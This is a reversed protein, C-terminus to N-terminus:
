SWWGNVDVIVHASSYVYICLEGTVSLPLQAGNSIATATTYNVNATNPREGCPFATVFGSKEAGTVAVNVSVARADAPIGRRGAMQITIVQGAALRNGGTGANVDTRTVERTDTFRFPASPTFKSPSATSLYGTVDVVLDVDSTTFFCVRGDAAVPTVVLNPKVFGPMPNLNAALPRAADCPYVTIYGEASPDVSAVNLAAAAIDRPLGNAGGVQLEVTQGGSIRTSPGIPARTDMLRSPTVATFRGTGSARYFGSVDVVLQTTSSSYVCIGGTDDFPVTAANPLTDAAAFNLTSVLPREAACNWVTLFGAGQTQTVTFNASAAKADTPIGNRGGIQIRKSVGARLVSAGLNERTDVLRTPVMPEFGTAGGSPVADTPGPTPTPVPTTAAATAAAPDVTFGWRVSRAGTRVEVTYAGPELPNRPMAVVVNNSALIQSALGSTNAATLTCMQLPGSPGTVSSTAGAASEPMLAMIPLGGGSPWGCFELPNPSETQFRDLSTTM